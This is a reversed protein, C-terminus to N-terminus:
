LPYYLLSGAHSSGYRNSYDEKEKKSTEYAVTGIATSNAAYRPLSPGLKFPSQQSVINGEREGETERVCM